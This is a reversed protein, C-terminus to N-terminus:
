MFFAHSSVLWTDPKSYYDMLMAKMRIYIIETKIVKWFWLVVSM